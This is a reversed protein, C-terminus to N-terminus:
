NILLHWNRNSIILFESVYMSRLYSAKNKKKLYFEFSLFFEEQFGECVDEWYEVGEGM